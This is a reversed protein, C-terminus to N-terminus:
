NSRSASSSSSSSSTATITMTVITITIAEIGIDTSVGFAVILHFPFLAGGEKARLNDNTDDHKCIQGSLYLVARNHGVALWCEAAVLLGVWSEGFARLGVGVCHCGLSSDQAASSSPSPPASPSSWTQRCRKIRSTRLCPQQFDHGM